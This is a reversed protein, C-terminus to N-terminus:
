EKRGKKMHNLARDQTAKKLKQKKFPTDKTSAEPMKAKKAADYLFGSKSLDKKNSM